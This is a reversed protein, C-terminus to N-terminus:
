EEREAYVFIESRNSPLQTSKLTRFGMSRIQNFYKQLNTRSIDETMKLTYFIKTITPRLKYIRRLQIVIDEPSLNIDCALIDIDDPLTEDNLKQMPLEIHTFNPHNLCVESMKATDVGYVKFGRNLFAYSAGGPASGLELVTERERMKYNTWKMAEELKMYARSPAEAPKEIKPDAGCCKWTYRRGRSIGIWIEDEGVTIADVIEQGPKGEKGEFNEGASSFRHVTRGESVEGIKVEAEESKFRGLSIGYRRAFTLYLVSESSYTIDEDCNKFTIFGPRSYAPRLNPYKEAMEEKLLKESGINVVTYIFMLWGMKTM